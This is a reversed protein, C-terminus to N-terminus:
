KTDDRRGVNDAFKNGYVNHSDAYKHHQQGCCTVAWYRIWYWMGHHKSPNNDGDSASGQAKPECQSEMQNVAVYTRRGKDVNFAENLLNNERDYIRTSQFTTAEDFLKRPDSDLASAIMVYGALMSAIGLLAVIVFVFGGVRLGRLFLGFGSRQQRNHRNPQNGNSRGRQPRPDRPTQLEYM